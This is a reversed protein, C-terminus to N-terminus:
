IVLSLNNQKLLSIIDGICVAAQWIVNASCYSVSCFKKNLRCLTKVVSKVNVYSSLLLYNGQMWVFLANRNFLEGGPIHIFLVVIFKNEGRSSFWNLWIKWPYIILSNEREAMYAIRIFYLHVYVPVLRFFCNYYAASKNPQFHSLIKMIGPCLYRNHLHAILNHRWYIKRHSLNNMMM